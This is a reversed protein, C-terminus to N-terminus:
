TGSRAFLSGVDLDAVGAIPTPVSAGVGYTECARYGDPGPDTRVEVSRGPVDVLWYIPIGAKAYLSSKVGRDVAHSSAPVEVVLLSTSPHCGPSRGEVLALDPM